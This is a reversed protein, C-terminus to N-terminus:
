LMAIISQVQNIQQNISETERTKEGFDQLFKIGEVESETVLAMNDM